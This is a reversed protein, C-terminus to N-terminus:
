SSKFIQWRSTIVFPSSDCCSLKFIVLSSFNRSAQNHMKILERRSEQDEHSDSNLLHKFDCGQCIPQVVLIMCPRHFNSWFSFFQVHSWIIPNENMIMFFCTENSESIYKMLNPHFKKKVIQSSFTQRMPNLSLFLRFNSSIIGQTQHTLLKLKWVQFNKEWKVFKSPIFFRSFESLIREERSFRLYVRVRPIEEKEGFSFQAFSAWLTSFSPNYLLPYTFPLELTVLYITWYGSSVNLSM